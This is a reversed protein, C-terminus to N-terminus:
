SDCEAEEISAYYQQMAYDFTNLYLLEMCEKYSDAYVACEWLNDAINGRFSGTIYEIENPRLNTAHFILKNAAYDIKHGSGIKDYLNESFTRYLFDDINKYFRCKYYYYRTMLSKM